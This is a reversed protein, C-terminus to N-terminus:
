AAPEVTARVAEQKQRASQRRYFRRDCENCRFPRVGIASLLFEMPKRHSLRTTATPCRPCALPM